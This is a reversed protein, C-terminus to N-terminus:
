TSLQTLGAAAQERISENTLRGERALRGVLDPHASILNLTEETAAGRMTDVLSAHLAELSPFPRKPFAREAIWPSHEFLPGCVGVFADRDSTSLDSLSISM